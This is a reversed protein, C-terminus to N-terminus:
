TQYIKNLFSALVTQAHADPQFYQAHVSTLDCLTNRTSVSSLPDQCMPNAKQVAATATRDVAHRAWDVDAQNLRTGQAVHLIYLCLNDHWDPSLDDPLDTTSAYAGICLHRWCQDM